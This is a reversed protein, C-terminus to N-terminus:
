QLYKLLEKSNNDELISDFEKKTIEVKELNKYKYSDIIAISELNVQVVVSELGDDVIVWDPRALIKYYKM